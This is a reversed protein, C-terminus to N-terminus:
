RRQRRRQTALIAQPQLASVVYPPAVEDGHLLVMQLGQGVLLAQFDELRDTLTTLFSGSVVGGQGVNTEPIGPWYMRGTGRRGGFGTIKRILVSAGAYSAEQATAGPISTGLQAFAGSSNPGNKVLISTIVSATSFTSQVASAVLATVVGNATQLPGTSPATEEVGFTVEAGTPLAVGTFRLNVQAFGVPIVM